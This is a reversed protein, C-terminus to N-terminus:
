RCTSKVLTILTNQVDCPVTTLPSLLTSEEKPLSITSEEASSDGLFNGRVSHSLPLSQHPANRTGVKSHLINAKYDYKDQLVQVSEVAERWNVWGAFRTLFTFCVAAQV